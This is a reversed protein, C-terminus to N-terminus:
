APGAAKLACVYYTWPRTHGHRVQEFGADSVLSDLLDVRNDLMAPSVFPRLLRRGLRSSPPLFEAVLISGGPRLVRGMEGIAAARSEESLHHIMLSSVVVDYSDDPADLAEAVGNVYTCNDLTNLRRAESIAEGSPDVGLATGGPAVAQAMARTLSGTGCGVDLARDGPRAGSEVVLRTFV